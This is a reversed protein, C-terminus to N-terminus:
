NSIAKRYAVQPNIGCTDTLFFRTISGPVYHNSNRCTWSCIKLVLSFLIYLHLRESPSGIWYTTALSPIQECDAVLGTGKRPHRTAVQQYGQMCEQDVYWFHTQMAAFPSGKVDFHKQFTRSLLMLSKIGLLDAMAILCIRSIWMLWFSIYSGGDAQVPTKM